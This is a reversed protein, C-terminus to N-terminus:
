SRRRPLAFFDHLMMLRQSSPDFRLRAPKCETEVRM